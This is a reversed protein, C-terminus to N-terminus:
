FPPILGHAGAELESPIPAQALHPWSAAFRCINGLCVFLVKQKETTGADSGSAAAVACPRHRSTRPCSTRRQGRAVGGNVAAGLVAPM